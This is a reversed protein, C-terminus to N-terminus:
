HGRGSNFRCEKQSISKSDMADALEALPGLGSVVTNKECGGAKTVTQAERELAESEGRSEVPICVTAFTKRFDQGSEMPEPGNTGTAVAKTPYSLDAMAGIARSVSQRDAHLYRVRTTRSAHHMSAAIDKEPVGAEALATGHGHRVSYFVAVEGKHNVPALFDNRQREERDVDTTAEKVWILRADARDHRVM